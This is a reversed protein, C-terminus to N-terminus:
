EIDILRIQEIEFLIDQYVMILTRGRQSTEKEIGPMALYDISM